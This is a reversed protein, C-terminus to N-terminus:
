EALIQKIRAIAEDVAQEPSVGEAVVRHIAKPWVFEADVLEHRWNGSTAAFNHLTTRSSVQMVSAMKHRDSPDLWFPADLLKPMPPLMREGSFDLYHALWGERVLFRIFDTATDADDADKFVIASYVLGFIPFTDNHLGLPWEITATNERYDEPRERKLQNPISLTENPTMVVAQALFAKNNDAYGWAASGPPTCGKRYIEVYRDIATVLGQRIEPEDIVLKGERTVYNAGYVSIFQSFFFWPEATLASMNVGVAWIDDRGTAKRVAPQVKDCWFSWFAEWERPIDDLNFGARELLSKWVHIHVTSRGIPLGYLGRQGTKDNILTVSALADADFLSSFTGVADSLDVLRDDSAWQPIRYVMDLGYAFDPPQGAKLAAAIKNPLELEDYFTLDVRKGTDQEFAAIIERVADDEQDYYGKDWWVVLDAARAGLPALALGVALLGRILPQM